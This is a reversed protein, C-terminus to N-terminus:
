HMLGHKISRYFVPSLFRYFVIFCVIDDTIVSFESVQPCHPGAARQVNNSICEKLNLFESQQITLLISLDSGEATHTLAEFLMHLNNKHKWSFPYLTALFNRQVHGKSQEQCCSKSFSYNYYYCYYYYYYNPGTTLFNFRIASNNHQLM